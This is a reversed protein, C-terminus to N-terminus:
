LHVRSLPCIRFFHFFQYDPNIFILVWYICILDIHHFYSTNHKVILQILIYHMVSSMRTALASYQNSVYIL